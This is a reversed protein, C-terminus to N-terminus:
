VVDVVLWIFSNCVVVILYGVCCVRVLGCFGCSVGVGLILSAHACIIM